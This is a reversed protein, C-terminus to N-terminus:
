NRIAEKMRGMAMDLLSYARELDNFSRHVWSSGWFFNCSTEAILIHDYGNVILQRVKEPNALKDHCKDFAKKVKQYYASCNQVEEWGKKQILSGTWQTVNGGWHEGTNWVGRHVEVAENSQRYSTLMDEINIVDHFTERIAPDEFQKLLTGSVSLHLKAIDKYEELMRVTRDYCWLIQRAEWREESNHLALLNGLPQHMNLGLAHYVDTM